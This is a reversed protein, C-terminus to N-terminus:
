GGAALEVLVLGYEEALADLQRECAKLDAEPALKELKDCLNALRVAGLALSTGKLTHAHLGLAKRDGMELAERLAALLPQQRILGTAAYGDMEPMQCDMLVIDYGGRANAEVAERGNLVVDVEHGLKKLM